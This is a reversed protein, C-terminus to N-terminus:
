RCKTQWEWNHINGILNYIVHSHSLTSSASAPPDDLPTTTRQPSNDPSEDITLDLPPIPSAPPLLPPVALPSVPNRMQQQRRFDILIPELTEQFLLSTMLVQYLSIRETQHRRLDYLLHNLGHTIFNYQRLVSYTTPQNEFVSQLRQSTAADTLM